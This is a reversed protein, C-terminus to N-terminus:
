EILWTPPAPKNTINPITDHFDDYITYPITYILPQLYKLYSPITDLWYWDLFKLYPIM